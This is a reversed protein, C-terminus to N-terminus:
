EGTHVATGPEEFRQKSHCGTLLAREAIVSSVSLEQTLVSFACFGVALLQPTKNTNLNPFEILDVGLVM